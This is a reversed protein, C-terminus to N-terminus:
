MLEGVSQSYYNEGNCTRCVWVNCSKGNVTDRWSFLLKQNSECYKCYGNKETEWAFLPNASDAMNADYIKTNTPSPTTEERTKSDKEMGPITKGGSVKELDEETLEVTKNEESM